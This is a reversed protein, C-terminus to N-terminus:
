GQDWSSDRLEQAVARRDDDGLPGFLATKALMEVITDKAVM